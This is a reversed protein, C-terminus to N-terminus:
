GRVVRYRLHTVGDSEIVRTQELPIPVPGIHDLLRVGAGLLLPVVSIQIEDLKGARLLQQATDAASVSV